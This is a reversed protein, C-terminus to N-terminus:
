KFLNWWTMTSVMKPLPLYCLVMCTSRMLSRLLEMFVTLVVLVILAIFAIWVIFVIFVDFVKLPM